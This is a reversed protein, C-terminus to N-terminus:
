HNLASAAKEFSGPEFELVWTATQTVWTVVTQLDLELPDSLRLCIYPPLVCILLFKFFKFM